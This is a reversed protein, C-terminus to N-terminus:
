AVAPVFLVTVHNEEKLETEINAYISVTVKGPIDKGGRSAIVPIYWWDSEQTVGDRIIEFM